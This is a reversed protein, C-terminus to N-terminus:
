SSRAPQPFIDSRPSHATGPPSTPTTSPPPRDRRQARAERPRHRGHGATCEAEAQDDAQDTQGGGRGARAPRHRDHREAAIRGDTDGVAAAHRRRIRCPGTGSPAGAPESGRARYSGRHRAPVSQQRRARARGARAGGGPGGVGNGYLRPHRACRVGRGRSSTDEGDLGISHESCKHPQLTEHPPARRRSNGQDGNRHYGAAPRGLRSDM